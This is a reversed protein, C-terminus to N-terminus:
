FGASDINAVAGMSVLVASVGALFRSGIHAVLFGDGPAARNVRACLGATALVFDAFTTSDASVLGISVVMSEGWVLELCLGSISLKSREGCNALCDVCSVVPSSSAIPPARSPDPCSRTLRVLSAANADRRAAVAGARLSRVGDAEVMLLGLIVVGSGSSATSGLEGASDDASDSSENWEKSDHCSGRDGGPADGSKEGEFVYGYGCSFTGSANLLPCAEAKVVVGVSAPHSRFEEPATIPLPQGVGSVGKVSNCSSSLPGTEGLPGVSPAAFGWVVIGAGVVTSSGEGVGSLSEREM